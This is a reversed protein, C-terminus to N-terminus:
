KAHDFMVLIQQEEVEPTRVPIPKNENFTAEESVIPVDPIDM